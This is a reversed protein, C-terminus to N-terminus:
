TINWCEEIKIKKDLLNNIKNLVDDPLHSNIIDVLEHSSLLIKKDFSNRLHNLDYGFCEHCEAPDGGNNWFENSNLKDYNIKWFNFHKKEEVFDVVFKVIDYVLDVTDPSLLWLNSPTRYEVGYSTKRYRGFKGFYFRREKCNKSNDILILPIGLFLDLMRILMIKNEQGNINTGIHIHGGAFRSTSKKFNELDIRELSYACHESECGFEFSDKHGLECTPFKDFSSNSIKFPKILNILNKLSLRVNKIFDSKSFSPEINTEALVNDYYIKNKISFLSNKNELIGISSKPNSNEDLLIFEPDSGISFNM